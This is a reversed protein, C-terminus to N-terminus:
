SAKELNISVKNIILHQSTDINVNRNTAYRPIMLAHKQKLAQPCVPASNKACFAGLSVTFLAGVGLGIAFAMTLLKGGALMDDVGAALGSIAGHTGTMDMKNIFLQM